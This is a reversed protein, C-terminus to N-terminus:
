DENNEGDKKKPNKSSSSLMWLFNREQQSPYVMCCNFTMPESGTRTLIAYLVAATFIIYMHEALLVCWYTVIFKSFRNRKKNM